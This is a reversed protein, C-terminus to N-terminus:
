KPIESLHVIVKGSHEKVKYKYHRFEGHEYHERDFFFFHNKFLSSKKRLLRQKM